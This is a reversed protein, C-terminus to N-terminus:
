EMDDPSQSYTPLWDTWAGGGPDGEPQCDPSQALPPLWDGGIAPNMTAQADSGPAFRRDHPLQSPM